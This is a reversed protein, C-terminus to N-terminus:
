SSGSPEVRARRVLVGIMILVVGGLLLTPFFFAGQVWGPYCLLGSLNDFTAPFVFSGCSQVSSGAAPHFPLVGLAIGAVATLVGIVFLATSAFKRAM